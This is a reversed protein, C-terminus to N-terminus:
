SAKDLGVIPRGHQLIEVLSGYHVAVTPMSGSGELLEASVHHEFTPTIL